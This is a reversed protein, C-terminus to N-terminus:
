RVREINNNMTIPWIVDPRIPPSTVALTCMMNGYQRVRNEMGLIM